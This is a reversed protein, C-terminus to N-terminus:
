SRPVRTASRPLLPVEFEVDYAARMRRYSEALARERRANEWERMVQARVDDLSPAGGPTRSDVRVVHVGFGSVVPGSWEGVPLREIQRAFQEGFDRQVVDLAQETARAPLLSPQGLSAPDAGRALAARSAAVARAPDRGAASPVLLIQEFTVLTPTAFRSPHSALFASLEADSPEATTREEEALVELKQRVRRRIVADDRDLALKVGERYLIEDRVWSEVLGRLEKETPARGWLKEHQAALDAIQERTVVIRRSDGSSPAVVRHIVFLALGLLLFHLLPERSFRMRMM